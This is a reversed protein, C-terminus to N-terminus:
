APIMGRLPERRPSCSTPVEARPTTGAARHRQRLQDLLIALHEPALRSASPPRVLRGCGEAATPPAVLGALGAEAVLAALEGPDVEPHLRGDPTVEGSFVLGKASAPPLEGCLLLLGVAAALECGPPLDAAGARRQGPERGGARGPVQRVRVVPAGGVQSLELLALAARGQADRCGALVEVEDRTHM